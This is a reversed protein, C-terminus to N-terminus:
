QRPIVILPAIGAAYSVQNFQQRRFELSTIRPEHDTVRESPSDRTRIPARKSHPLKSGSKLRDPHCRIPLALPAAPSRLLPPLGGCELTDLQDSIDSI